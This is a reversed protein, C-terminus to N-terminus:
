TWLIEIEAAPTAEDEAGVPGPAPPEPTPQQEDDDLQILRKPKVAVFADLNEKVAKFGERVFDRVGDEKKLDKVDVGELVDKAQAVIAQLEKSSLVNNRDAFAAFFENMKEVTTAFFKKKKGDPTPTLATVMRDVLQAMEVAVMQKMDEAADSWLREAREQERAFIQRSIAKLSQPVGFSLYQVQLGIRNLIAATEPYDAPNYLVNLGAATNQISQVVTKEFEIKLRAEEEITANIRADVEVLRSNPVLWVSSKLIAPICISNMYDKLAGHNRNIADLEKSILIKKHARVLAKDADVEILSPAIKRTVGFTSFKISVCTANDFINQAPSPQQPTENVITETTQNEM